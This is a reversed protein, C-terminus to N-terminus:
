AKIGAGPLAAAQGDLPWRPRVPANLGDLLGLSLREIGAWAVMVANDACLRQPPAVLQIGCGEATEDLRDRIHQNAAVGGAIVALGGGWENKLQDAARAFRDALVDAIATQYCACLDAQIGPNGAQSGLKIITQRLKTKLGSFSFNCNKDRLLPRPMDFRHPNGKKALVEVAPGGPHGLGLMKAAKDFAEGVADDITSGLRQYQGVGEVILLQTHGGSALLLLYPFDVPELLRVTLAHAELHNVAAFPLDHALAIAKGMNAGVLLGGILGPGCTAAIGDLDTFELGSDLMVADIIADLKELHARAAIEPVVGGFVAHDDIQSFVREALIRSSARSSLQQQKM